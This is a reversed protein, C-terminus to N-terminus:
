GSADRRVTVRVAGDSAAVTAAGAWTIVADPIPADGALWRRITRPDRVLVWRAYASQSLGSAEIVARLDAPTM